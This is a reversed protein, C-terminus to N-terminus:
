FGLLERQLKDILASWLGWVADKGDCICVVIEVPGDTGSKSCFEKRSQAKILALLGETGSPSHISIINELIFYAM